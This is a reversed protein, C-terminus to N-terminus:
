VAFTMFLRDMADFSLVIMRLKHGPNRKRNTYLVIDNALDNSIDIRKNKFTLCCLHISSNEQYEIKEIKLEPLEKLLEELEQNYITPFLKNIKM